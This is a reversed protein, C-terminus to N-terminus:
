LAMMEGGRRLHQRREEWLMGGLRERLLHLLPEEKGLRDELKRITDKLDEIQRQLAPSRRARAEHLAAPQPIPAAPGSAGRGEDQASGALRTGPPITKHLTM